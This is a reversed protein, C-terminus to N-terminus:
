RWTKPLLDRVKVRLSKALKPLHHLMTRQVGNEMNAVSARTMKITTGLAAQSLDRVTRYHRINAGIERYCPEVATM